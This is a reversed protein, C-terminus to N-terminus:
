HDSPAIRKLEREIKGRDYGVREIATRVKTESIGACHKWYTVEHIQRAATTDRKRAAESKDVRM